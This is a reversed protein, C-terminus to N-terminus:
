FKPKHCQSTSECAITVFLVPRDQARVSLRKPRTQSKAVGHIPALWAGRDMHNELCFYQLPNGHGGGTSRGWGPISGADGTAGANASPSKVVSGSPLAWPSAMYGKILKGWHFYRALSYYLMVLLIKDNICDLYLVNGDWCPDRRNKYGCGDGGAGWGKVESM